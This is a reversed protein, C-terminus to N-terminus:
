KFHQFIRDGEPGKTAASTVVTEWSEPSLDSMNYEARASYGFKHVLSGNLISAALDVYHTEHDVVVADSSSNEAAAIEYIRYAPNVGKHPTLSPALYAVNVASSGQLMPPSKPKTLIAAEAFKDSRVESKNGYFIEFEDNHTHGFFQGIITNNFRRM